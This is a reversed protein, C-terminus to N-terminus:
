NRDFHQGPILTAEWQRLIHRHDEIVSAYNADEALNTLEWPDKELDFLLANPYEAFDEGHGPIFQTHSSDSKRVFPKEFNGSYQYRMAYKYKRTRVLRGTIQWESYINTRWDKSDAGEIDVIPRLSVGRQLPPPEIGAYDCLTPTIDVGSTMHETDLIGAKVRRPSWIILPVKLSSQYPHWKEVRQHRGLGEGHDSTFIVITDDNRERVADMIRGVHEDIDEVMRYYDYTYNRWQTDGHFGRYPAEGHPEKFEYHFNPPLIPLEGGLQYVDAEPTVREGVLEATWYCIDHPNMLSAVMFYPTIGHDNSIFSAVSNSVQPDAYIGMSSGGVPLTDFGPAKRPGSVDPYNWHGGMHWKGCYVRRYDTHQEFWQGTNPVHEDIGINIMVVGTEIAMRGTFMCSRSPSCVPDASHSEMFSFGEQALRDLHPTKVWYCGYAHDKYHSSFHAIADINLQDSIIFVINPKKGKAATPADNMAAAVSPHSLLSLGGIAAGAKLFNRRSVASDTHESPTDVTTHQTEILHDEPM